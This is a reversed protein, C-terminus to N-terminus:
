IYSNKYKILKYIEKPNYNLIYKKDEKNNIRVNWKSSTAYEEQLKFKGDLHYIFLDCKLKPNDNFYAGAISFTSISMIIYSAKYFLYFSNWWTLGELLFIKNKYKDIDFKGDKIIFEKVISDSDSVIYITLEPHEKILINIKDIYFQPTYILFNDYNNIDNYAINLKDGYRIHVIAYPHM